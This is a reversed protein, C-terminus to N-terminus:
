QFTNPLINNGEDLEQILEKSDIQAIGFGTLPGNSDYEYSISTGNDYVVSAPRRQM